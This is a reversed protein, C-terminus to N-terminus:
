SVAALIAARDHVLFAVIGEAVRARVSSGFPVLNTTYNVAVDGPRPDALNTAFNVRLAFSVSPTYFPSLIRPILKVHYQVTMVGAVGVDGDPGPVAVLANITGRQRGQSPTSAALYAKADAAVPTATLNVYAPPMAMAVASLPIVPELREVVPSSRRSVSGAM